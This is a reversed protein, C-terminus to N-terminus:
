LYQLYLFVSHTVEYRLGVVVKDDGECRPVCSIGEGLGQDFLRQGARYLCRLTSESDYNPRKFRVYDILVGEGLSPLLHAVAYLGVEWGALYPPLGHLYQHPPMVSEGRRATPEMDNTRPSIQKERLLRPCTERGSALTTERLSTALRVKEAKNM